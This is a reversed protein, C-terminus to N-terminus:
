YCKNSICNQGAKCPKDVSCEPQIEEATKCVNMDCAVFRSDILKCGMLDSCAYHCYGDALCEQGPGTCKVSDSCAPKPSPDPICAGTGGNCVEGAACDSNASCKANCQGAVCVSGASCGPNCDKSPNQFCAGNQCSYGAPCMANADCGDACAGNVCVKSAGCEYTFQCGDICLGSICQKGDGCASNADCPCVAMKPDCKVNGSGTSGATGTTSGGGSGGAGGTTNPDAPHCGYGDCIQCNKGQADCNLASDDCGGCGAGSVAFLGLAAFMGFLRTLPSLSMPAELLACCLMPPRPRVVVPGNMDRGM